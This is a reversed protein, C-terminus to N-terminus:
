RKGLSSQVHVDFVICLSYLLSKTYTRNNFDKKVLVILAELLAELYCEITFIKRLLTVKHVREDFTHTHTHTHTSELLLFEKVLLGYFM